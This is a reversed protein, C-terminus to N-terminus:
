LAVLGRRRQALREPKQTRLRRLRGSRLPLVARKKDMWGRRALDGRARSLAIGSRGCAGSSHTGARRKALAPVVQTEHAEFPRVMSKGREGRTSSRFCRTVAKM